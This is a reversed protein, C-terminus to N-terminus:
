NGKSVSIQSTAKYKSSQSIALDAASPMSAIDKMKEIVSFLLSYSEPAQMMEGRNRSNDKIIDSLNSLFLAKHEKDFDHATMFKNLAETIKETKVNPDAVFFESNNLKLELFLLDSPNKPFISHPLNDDVQEKTIRNTTELFALRTILGHAESNIKFDKKPNFTIGNDSLYRLFGEPRVRRIAEDKKFYIKEENSVIWSLEPIPKMNPDYFSIDLGRSDKLSVNFVEVGRTVGRFIKIEEEHEDLRLNKRVFNEIKADNWRSMGKVSIEMDLDAPARRNSTSKYVSSGKLFVRHDNELLGSIMRQVFTPIDNRSDSIIREGNFFDRLEKQQESKRVKSSLKDEEEMEFNEVPRRIEDKANQRITSALIDEKKMNDSEKKMEYEIGAMKSLNDEKEMKINESERRYEQKITSSSLEDEKTMNNIESQRLEEKIRRDEDKIKKDEAEQEAKKKKAEQALKKRANKSMGGVEIDEEVEAKPKRESSAQFNAIYGKIIACNAGKNKNAAANFEGIFKNKEKQPLEAFQEIVKTDLLIQQLASKNNGAKALSVIEKVVVTKFCSHECEGLVLNLTDRNESRSALTLTSIADPTELNVNAGMKILREVIESQGFRAAVHLATWGNFLENPDSRLQTILNVAKNLKEKDENTSFKTLNVAKTQLNSMLNDLKEKMESESLPVEVILAEKPKKLYQEATKNEKNLISTDAGNDQLLKILNEYEFITAYHLATNGDKRTKINIAEAASPDSLLVSTLTQKNSRVALHLPTYGDKNRLKQNVGRELLLKSLRPFSNIISTHLATDGNTKPINIVDPDLSLITDLAKPNKNLVNLHLITSGDETISRTDAKHKTILTNLFETADLYSTIHLISFGKESKVNVDAGVEVLSSAINLMSDFYPKYHAVVDASSNTSTIKTITALVSSIVCDLLKTANENSDTSFKLIQDISDDMLKSVVMQQSYNFDHNKLEFVNIMRNIHNSAEFNYKSVEKDRLFKEILPNSREENISDSDAGNRLLMELVFIECNSRNAYNLPSKGESDRRNILDKNALIASFVAFSNKSLIANHLLSQGCYTSDDTNARKDILFEMLDERGALAAALLPTFNERSKLNIDAGDNILAKIKNCYEDALPEHSRGTRALDRLADISVYLSKSLSDKKDSTLFISKQYKSMFVDVQEILRKREEDPIVQRLALDTSTILNYSQTKLSDEKRMLEFSRREFDKKFTEQQSSISGKLM